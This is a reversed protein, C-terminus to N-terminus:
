NKELALEFLDKFVSSGTLTLHNSDWYFPRNEKDAYLCKYDCIVASMNYFKIRPDNIRKILEELSRNISEQDNYNQNLKKTGIPKNWMLYPVNASWVPIPGLYNVKIGLQSSKYLFMELNKDGIAGPSYHMFISKINNESVEKFIQSSLSIDDILPRNRSWYFVKLGSDNAVSTFTTKIADAHSDGLLLVGPSGKDDGLICVNEFPNFIKFFIGCGYSSRDKTSQNIKQDSPKFRKLHFDEVKLTFTILVISFLVILLRTNSKLFDNTEVVKFMIVSLCITLLVVLIYDYFNLLLLNTGGFPIYAFIAIVPFHVLYISYSYDGLKVFLRLIMNPKLTMKQSLLIGTIATVLLSSLGPHGFIVSTNTGDLYPQFFVFLLFLILIINKKKLVIQFKLAYFGIMFEWIRFPLLYFVTKPSTSLLFFCLLLSTFFILNFFKLKKQFVWYIFPVILYFQIEVGLSWLNLLPNFDTSSFYTNKSWFYLNPLFFSSAKAQAILQSFDSPVFRYYGIFLTLLITIMYAPLIRKARKRYFNVFQGNQYITAMLYGSIVFFIDVGIFGNQFGPINLHYFVVLLISIGRLVQIDDRKLSKL